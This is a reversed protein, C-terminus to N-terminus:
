HYPSWRSRCPVECEKGVRREESRGATEAGWLAFWAEPLPPLLLAVRPTGGDVLARFLNGSRRIEALLERYTWRRPSADAASLATLAPRGPHRQAVDGLADIVRDFRMWSRLGDREIARLDDLTAITAPKM